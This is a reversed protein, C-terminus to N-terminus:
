MIVNRGGKINYQQAKVSIATAALFGRHLFASSLPRSFVGRTRKCWFRQKRATDCHQYRSPYELSGTNRNMHDSAVLALAVQLSRYEYGRSYLSRARLLHVRYARLLCSASPRSSGFHWCLCRRRGASSDRGGIRHYSYLCYPSIYRYRATPRLYNDCNHGGKLASSSHHLVCSYTAEHHVSDALDASGTDPSCCYM